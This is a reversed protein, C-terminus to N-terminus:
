STPAKTFWRMVRRWLDAPPPADHDKGVFPHLSVILTMYAALLSGWFGIAPNASLRALPGPRFDYGSEGYREITLSDARGFAVVQMLSGGPTVRVFGKPGPQRHGPEPEPEGLRVQDGLMLAAEDVKTRRDASEDGTYVIVRGSELMHSGSWSVARGLTTAGYFPFIRTDVPATPWVLNVAPGLAADEILGVISFTGVSGAHNARLSIAFGGGPNTQLMVALDGDLRVVQEPEEFRWAQWTRSGCPNAGSTVRSDDPLDLRERACLVAGDVQWRTETGRPLQIEVIQTAVEVSFEWKTPLVLQGGAFLIFAVIAAIMTAVAVKWWSLRARPEETSDETAGDTM